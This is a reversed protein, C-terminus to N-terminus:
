RNNNSLRWLQLEIDTLQVLLQRLEDIHEDRWQDSNKIRERIPDALDHLAEAARSALDALLQNSPTYSMTQRNDTGRM